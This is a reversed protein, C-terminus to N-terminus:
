FRFSAGILIYHTNFTTELTRSTGGTTVSFTPEVHTFRYETFVALNAQLQLALGLRLDLGIDVSNDSVERVSGLNGDLHSIFLGPGGAVYPRLQGEPFDESKLLALRALALATIPIVQLDAQPGFYSADMAFGLWPTAELWRGVRVGPTVSSTYNVEQTSSFSGTRVTVDASQTVGAGLYVDTFWEASAPAAPAIALLLLVPLLIM